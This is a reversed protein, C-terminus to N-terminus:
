SMPILTFPIFLNTMAVTNQIGPIDGLNGCYVKLGM